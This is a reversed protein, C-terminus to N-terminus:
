AFTQLDCLHSYLGKQRILENHTGREVVSGEKLVIIEDAHQITSLRHAIVVSTRNKMLNILAEQVLRESETDLASTAEDLILIPPNKLVARAIALRQRQGGSLKLGRDGINAQYGFEMQSIFEHANAIKAATIVDEERVEEMGFAINNFVTDNFLIAEQTVIGMLNILEKPEYDRIDIGDLTISGTTVDYFRPLLDALTTKGAGSPGVLAIMKGKNIKININKLVPENAYKFGVGNFVIERKFDKVPVPNASKRIITEEDLIAFIREGSVLGRQLNAFANSISKSPELVKYYFTMYIFLEPLDMGLKGRLQLYGAYLLVIGVVTVGLFESLPSAMEQRNFMKKSARRHRYNTQDFRENTYKQANFAKIIRAGSISEEFHSVIKGMLSQTDTAGKKLSRVVRGIVFATIPLAVLTVSTLQPSMYFLMSLFGIIMLPDRFLIAFSNAVSNQVETVDNSISSLIDGKRKEHFYGIHLRSIKLFLAKRINYMLRTRMSVLIRQSLYRTLNSFFSAILFIICVFLLGDQRASEGMFKTLYYNFIQKFYDVSVYFDPLVTQQTISAPDFIIRTLPDILAFYVVGFFVSLISLFLYSPWYRGYPKAFSLLRLFIKM